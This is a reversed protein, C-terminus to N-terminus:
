TLIFIINITFEYMHDESKCTTLESKIDGLTEASLPEVKQPFQLNSSDTNNSTVQKELTQQSYMSDSKRLFKTFVEPKKDKEM